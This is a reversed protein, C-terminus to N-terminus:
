RKETKKKGNRQSRKRAKYDSVWAEDMNRTALVYVAWILIGYLFGNSMASLLSVLRADVSASISLWAPIMNGPFLPAPVAMSAVMFLVFFVFFVPGGRM